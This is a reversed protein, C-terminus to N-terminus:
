VGIFSWHGTSTTCHCHRRHRYDPIMKKVSGGGEGTWLM